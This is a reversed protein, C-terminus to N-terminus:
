LRGITDSSLTKALIGSNYRWSQRMTSGLLFTLRLPIVFHTPRGDERSCVPTQPASETPRLKVRLNEPAVKGTKSGYPLLWKRLNPQMDVIRRAATKAHKARVRIHRHNVDSWDLREIESARLGAFAGIAWYPLTEESAVSLLGKLEEPTLIGVEDAVERM